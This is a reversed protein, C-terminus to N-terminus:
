TRSRTSTASITSSCATPSSTSSTHMSGSWKTPRCAAGAAPVRGVHARRDQPGQHGRAHRAHLLPGTARALDAAYADPASIPLAPALPDLNLPSVYLCSIRIRAAESLLPVARAARGVHTRIEVPVWDSWEGVRLLREEGGVVLKAYTRSPTSTRPSRCRRGERAAEPASQGPRRARRARRQRRGRRPLHAAQSLSGGTAFPDSTYLSFTGYTGLLDPTGMGSLERTARGSPPFNAPMRVITTEIGQASSCAGLVSRGAAAAGCARGDAAVAMTGVARLPEAARDEDDVSVADDDEPRSPHLRLHRARRPRPRHHVVVMRGPEAAPDVHRAALVGGRQPSSERLEAAPGAGDPRPDPEFDLGDFGLVIVRRGLPRQRAGCGSVRAARAAVAVLPRLVCGAAASM